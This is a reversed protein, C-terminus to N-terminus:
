SSQALFQVFVLHMNRIIFKLLVITMHTKFAAGGGKKKVAFYNFCDCFM